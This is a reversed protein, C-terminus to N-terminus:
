KARFSGIIWLLIDNEKFDKEKDFLYQKASKPAGSNIFYTSSQDEPQCKIAQNESLLM